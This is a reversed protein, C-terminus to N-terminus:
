IQPEPEDWDQQPSGSLPRIPEQLSTPPVVSGSFSEPFDLNLFQRVLDSNGDRYIVKRGSRALPVLGGMAQKQKDAHVLSALRQDTMFYDEVQDGAGPRM